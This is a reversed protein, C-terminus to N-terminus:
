QGQASLAARSLGLVEIEVRRNQARGEASKNDARPQKKGKGEVYIRNAEVGKGVLYSKVTEARRMSLKDNYANSGIGDTHGVAIVVEVRVQTVKVLLDDLAAKGGPKLISKDFDFFVDAAFTMKPHPPLPIPPPNPPAPPDGHTLDRPVKPLLDADCEEVAQAQAPTWYGTRVCLNGIRADGVDSTRVVNGRADRVYASNERLQALASPAICALALVLLMVTATLSRLTRAPLARPLPPQLSARHFAADRFTGDDVAARHLSAGSFGAGHLAVGRLYAARLLLTLVHM